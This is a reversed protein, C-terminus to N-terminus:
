SMVRLDLTRIGRPMSLHRRKRPVRHHGCRPVHALSDTRFRDGALAQGHQPASAELRMLSSRLELKVTQVASDGSGNPMNSITVNAASSCDDISVLRICQRLAARQEEPVGTRLSQTLKGLASVSEDVMADVQSPSLTLSNLQDLKAQPAEREKGLEALRRDVLERNAATINDLLQNITHSVQGLRADTSKRTKAL